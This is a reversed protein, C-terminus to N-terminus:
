VPEAEEGIERKIEFLAFVCVTASEVIDIGLMEDVLGAKARSWAIDVPGSDPHSGRTRCTMRWRPGLEEDQAKRM